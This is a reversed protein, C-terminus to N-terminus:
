CPRGRARELGRVAARRRPVPPLRRRRLRQARLGRERAARLQGTWRISFDDNGLARARPLEGRAVLEETPSGRYWNFDVKADVRTLSPEGEFGRNNFYEGQLGHEASSAVPRLAEAPIPELADPDSRGEVLSSGRAYLVRTAPAVAAKIGALVTM